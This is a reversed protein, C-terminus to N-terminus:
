RSWIAASVATNTMGTIHNLVNAADNMGRNTPVYLVDNAMLTVDPAQREMIRKLPVPIQQKQATGPQGRLIYATDRNFSDLGGSMALAKLVTTDKADTFPFAGPQKVQGVVYIRQVKPISIRDGGRVLIDLEPHAGDLLDKLVVHTAVDQPHQVVVDVGADPALGGAIDIAELLRTQGLEQFTTPANVAGSVTIERSRYELVALDVVPNVFIKETQLQAAIQRAAEDPKLGAVHTPTTLLPLELNGQPDVRFSRSLEPSDYVHLDVLDSPGLPQMPLAAVSSSQGVMPSTLKPSKNAQQAPSQWFGAIAVISLLTLTRKSM